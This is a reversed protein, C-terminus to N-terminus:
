FAFGLTIGLHEEHYTKDEKYIIQLGINFDFYGNKGINRQLGWVMGIFTRRDIDSSKFRHGLVAGVYNAAFKDVRKLQQKRKDLNYYYRPSILVYRIFRFKLEDNDSPERAIGVGGHGLLTFNDKIRIEVGGGLPLLNLRFVANKDEREQAALLPIGLALILLSIIIYKKM